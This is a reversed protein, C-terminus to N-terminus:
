GIVYYAVFAVVIDHPYKKIYDTHRGYRGFDLYLQITDFLGRRIESVFGLM